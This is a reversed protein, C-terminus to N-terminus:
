TPRVYQQFCVECLWHYSRDVFGVQGPDLNANCFECHEHDWAGVALGEPLDRNPYLRRKHRSNVCVLELWFEVHEGTPPPQGADPPRRTAIGDSPQFVVRDWKWTPISIMWVHVPEADGELFRAEGVPWDAADRTAIFTASGDSGAQGTLKVAVSDLSEPGQRLLYGSCEEPYDLPASFAGHLQLRSGEARVEGVRFVALENFRKPTARGM